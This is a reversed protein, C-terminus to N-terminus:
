GNQNESQHGGYRGRLRLPRRLRLQVSRGGVRGVPQVGVVIVASSPYVDGLDVSQVDVTQARDAAELCTVQM